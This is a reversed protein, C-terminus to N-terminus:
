YYYAALVCVWMFVISFFGLVGGIIHGLTIDDEKPKPKRAWKEDSQEYESMISM